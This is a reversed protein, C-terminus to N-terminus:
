SILQKLQVAFRLILQNTLDIKRVQPVVDYVYLIPSNNGLGVKVM